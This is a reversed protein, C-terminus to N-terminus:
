VAGRMCVNRSLLLACAPLGALLRGSSAAAVSSSVMAATVTTDVNLISESDVASDEFAASLGPRIYATLGRRERIM